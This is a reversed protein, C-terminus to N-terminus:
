DTTTVVIRDGEEWDVARDLKLKTGGINVNGDLRAWSMGSNDPMLNDPLTAGKKGFMRLTGGYSIGLVKYGFYANMDGDDQPLPKYQYFYDEVGGPLMQKSAGNSDWIAQPVGCRVDSKCLIGSGGVGLDEGYLHITLKGDLKGIPDAETGAILSGNNEVIIGYAWFDIVADDFTLSGGGYINVNRYQYIGAGVTCPGTVELDDGNGTAIAGMTCTITPVGRPQNEVSPPASKGSSDDPMFSGTLQTGSFKAGKMDTNELNALTLDAGSLDANILITNTLDAGSLNAGKLNARSMDANILIANSLNTGSLNADVLIANKLNAGSLDLGSLNAGSLDCGVCMNTNLLIIVNELTEDNTTTLISQGEEPAVFVAIREDINGDHYIYMFYDDAPLTKTVCEGNAVVSLVEENESNVLTMYHQAQRNEDEWCYTQEVTTSFMYPIVDFGVGGTDSEQDVSLPSELFTATITKDPSAFLGSDEFFDIETYINTNQDASSRVLKTLTFFGGFVFIIALLLTLESKGIITRFKSM